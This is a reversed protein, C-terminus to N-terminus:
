RTGETGAATGTVEHARHRDAAFLFGRLAPGYDPHFRPGLAATMQDATGQPNAARWAAVEDRARRQLAPTDERFRM